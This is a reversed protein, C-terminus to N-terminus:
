KRIPETIGYKTHGIIRLWVREIFDLAGLAPMQITRTRQEAVVAARQQKASVPLLNARALQLVAFQGRILRSRM